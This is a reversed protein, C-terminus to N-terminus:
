IWNRWLIEIGFLFKNQSCIIGMKHSLWQGHRKGKVWLVSSSLYGLRQPSSVLQELFKQTHQPSSSQVAAHSLPWIMKSLRLSGYYLCQPSYCSTPWHTLFTEGIERVSWHRLFPRCTHAHYLVTVLCFMERYEWAMWVGSCDSLEWFRGNARKRRWGETM